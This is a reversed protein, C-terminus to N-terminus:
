RMLYLIKAELGNKLESIFHEKDKLYMTHVYIVKKDSSVDMSLTGPTLTILNAFITIEMETEVTLPVAIIAPNMHHKLTVIDYFVYFNAKLFEWLFYFFFAILAPLKKFYKSKARQGLSVWIAVYSFAFGVIFNIIDFHATILIWVFM